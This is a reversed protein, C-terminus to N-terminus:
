YSNMKIYDKLKEKVSEYPILEYPKMDIYWNKLKENDCLVMFAIIKEKELLELNCIHGIHADIKKYLEKIEVLQNLEHANISFVYRSPNSLDLEKRVMSLVLKFANDNYSYSKNVYAKCTDLDIKKWVYLITYFEEDSYSFLEICKMKKKCVDEILSLQESSLKGDELYSSIEIWENNNHKQAILFDLFIFVEQSTANNFNANNYCNLIDDFNMNSLLNNLLNLLTVKSVGRNTLLQYYHPKIAEFIIKLRENPCDTLFKHIKKILEVAVFESSIIIQEIQSKNYDEMISEIIHFPVINSPLSLSFFADFYNGNCIRGFKEAKSIGEKKPFLKAVASSINNKNIITDFNHITTEMEEIQKFSHNLLIDKSSRILDYAEPVYLELVCLAFLDAYNVEDQLFSNKFEFLNIVRKVDRINSIFPIVCVDIIENYLEKIFEYKDPSLVKEFEKHLVSNLQSSSIKPITIPIQIIKKLYDEGNGGQVDKLSSVVVDRDM